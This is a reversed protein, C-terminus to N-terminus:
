YLGHTIAPYSKSHQDTGALPNHMYATSRIYELSISTVTPAANAVCPIHRVMALTDGLGVVRRSEVEM